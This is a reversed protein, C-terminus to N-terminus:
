VTKSSPRQVDKQETAQSSSYNLKFFFSSSSATQGWSCILEVRGIRGFILIVNVWFSVKTIEITPKHTLKTKKTSKQVKWLM